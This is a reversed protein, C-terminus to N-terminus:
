IKQNSRNINKSWQIVYEPYTIKFGDMQKQKFLNFAQKNFWICLIVIILVGCVIYDRQLLTPSYVKAKGQLVYWTSSKQYERYILQICQWTDMM